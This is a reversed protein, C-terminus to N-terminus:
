YGSLVARESQECKTKYEPKVVNCMTLYDKGSSHVTTYWWVASYVVGQVCGTRGGVPLIYCEDLLPRSIEFVEKPTEGRDDALPLSKQYLASGYGDYCYHLSASKPCVKNLQALLKDKSWDMPYMTWLISLCPEAYVLAIGECTADITEVPLTSYKPLNLDSVASGEVPNVIGMIAGGGCANRLVEPIADCYTVAEKYNGVGRFAISHGVSHACSSAKWSDGEDLMPQCVRAIGEWFEKDNAYDAFGEMAGDLYGDQCMRNDVAVVESIPYLRAADHGIIHIMQHCQQTWQAGEDLRKQLHNLADAPGTKDFIRLADNLDNAAEGSICFKNEADEGCVPVRPDYKANEAAGSDTNSTGEPVNQQDTSDSVPSTEIAEDIAGDSLSVYAVGGAGISLVIFGLILYFGRKMRLITGRKLRTAPITVEAIKPGIACDLGVSM